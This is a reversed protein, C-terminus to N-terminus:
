VKEGYRENVWNFAPKTMLVQDAWLMDSVTIEDQLRLECNPLNAASKEFTADETDYVLVTKADADLGLGSLMSVVAKTKPETFKGAISDVVTTRAAKNQIAIGIALEAEKRNMKKNAWNKPKPGFSVGGGVKLPSRISGQRARGTGKQKFPKRGGGRVESRTKTSATGARANRRELVYKRHVVYMDKEGKTVKLNLTASGADGGDFTKVPVEATASAALASPRRATTSPAVLFIAPQWGATPDSHRLKLPDWALDDSVRNAHSKMELGNSALVTAPRLGRQIRVGLMMVLAFLGAGVAYLTMPTNNGNPLLKQAAQAPKDDIAMFPGTGENAALGHNSTWARQTPATMYKSLFGKVASPDAEAVDSARSETTLLLGAILVALQAM